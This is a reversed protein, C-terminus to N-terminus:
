EEGNAGRGESRGGSEQSRGEARQGRGEAGQKESKPEKSKAGPGGSKAGPEVSEAKPGKGKAGQEGSEAGLEVSEEARLAFSLRVQGNKRDTADVARLGTIYHCRTGWVTKPATTWIVPPKARSQLRWTRIVKEKTVVEFSMTEKEISPQKFKTTPCALALGVETVQPEKPLTILYDLRIAESAHSATQSYEIPGGPVDFTGSCAGVFQSRGRIEPRDMGSRPRSAGRRAGKEDNKSSTGDMGPKKTIRLGTGESRGVARDAQLFSVAKDSIKTTVLLGGEAVEDSGRWLEFSGDERFTVRGGPITFSRDKPRGRSKFSFAIPAGDNSRLSKASLAEDCIVRYTSQQFERDDILTWTRSRDYSLAVEAETGPAVIVHRAERRTVYTRKVDEPCAISIFGPEFHMRKGVYVDVPLHYMSGIHELEDPGLGWVSYAFLAGTKSATVTEAFKAVSIRTLNGRLVGTLSLSNATRNREWPGEPRGNRVQQAWLEWKKTAYSVGGDM